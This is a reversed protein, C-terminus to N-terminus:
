VKRKRNVIKTLEDLFGNVDEVGNVEVKAIYVPQSSQTAQSASHKILNEALTAFLGNAKPLIYEEPSKALAFLRATLDAPVVGDGVELRTIRGRKTILEPGIGDDVNYLGSSPIYKSGTAQKQLVVNHRMGGGNGGGHGKPPKSPDKKSKDGKDGPSPLQRSSLKEAEAMAEAYRRIAAVARDVFGDVQNGLQEM